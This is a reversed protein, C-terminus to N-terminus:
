KLQSATTSLISYDLRIKRASRKWGVEEIPKRFGVLKIVCGLSHACPMPLMSAAEYFDEPLNLTSPKPNSPWFPYERLVEHVKNM